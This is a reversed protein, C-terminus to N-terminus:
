NSGAGYLAVGDQMSIVEPALYGPNAVPTINVARNATGLPQLDIGM